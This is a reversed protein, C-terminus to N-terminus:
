DLDLKKLRYRLARFSIGLLKAAKTRNWKTKELANLIIEKEQEELITELNSDTETPIKPPSLEKSNPLNLDDETLTSTDSLALARELINELERVNGPYDYQKLVEICENSLEVQGHSHEKTLRKIIYKALQPIDEPHEQLSPVNLEIVNIRYYLDQRFRGANIEELLNKHSASLIRVDVNIEKHAGIPKIAKEQIARLLKVQMALPLEAIEDLFLTGGNAASFLGNKDNYAGTFSGKKHGFFESEMLETPIAGCNVPIFPKDVRPGQNHILQAVLEKGVGSEGHIFVPAQSRSLKTINIRLKQIVNSTGILLDTNDYSESNELLLASSILEKLMDIKIPKSVYDFAGAKLTNVAGEVNGYATIIAIPVNPKYKQVFQVLEIGDGDPLRMDALCLCYNNKKIYAYAQQLDCATDSDLGMRKLTLSLLERIDPEDDVVLVKKNKM